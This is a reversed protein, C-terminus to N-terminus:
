TKKSLFACMCLIYTNMPRPNLVVNNPTIKTKNKKIKNRAAM